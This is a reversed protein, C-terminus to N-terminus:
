VSIGERLYTTVVSIFIDFDDISCAPFLTLDRSPNTSNLVIYDSGVEATFIRKSDSTYSKQECKFMLQECGQSLMLPDAYLSFALNYEICYNLLRLNKM